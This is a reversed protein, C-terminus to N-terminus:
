ITLYSNIIFVVFTGLIGFLLVSGFNALFKSRRMNFGSAFVIPPLVIFFFITANFETMMNEVFEIYSIFMGFLITYSAEHGFKWKKSEILSGSMQFFLLCLMILIYKISLIEEIEEEGGTEGLVEASEAISEETTNM